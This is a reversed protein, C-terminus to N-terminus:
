GSSSRTSAAPPRCARTSRTPTRDAEAPQPLRRALHRAAPAATASSLASSRSRSSGADQPLRRDGLRGARHRRAPAPPTPSVLLGGGYAADVHLWAGHASACRRRDRRLPDIAGFDTTGATAVVAMPVLGGDRCARRARASPAPRGDPPRRRDAVPSSRTTASASCGPPRRCASTATPPPSSRAADAPDGDRRAAHDRALLLAQLNSQTGGSTFIGDAGRRRLRDAAATWDVLHREIFTGGVSQDFTDLLLQGRLRVGRRAAGPDRGPLQPPRRVDARPVLGRRRPLAPSM